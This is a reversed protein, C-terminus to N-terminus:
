LGSKTEIKDKILGLFEEASALARQEGNRQRMSLAGTELEKDGIILMYPVKQQQAQRIRYNLTNSSADTVARIGAAVLAKEIEEARVQHREAIPLVHVQVPCLWVPFNGGHHEILVAFFREMSGLLARHIMFPRHEKGDEAIYSLDFREPLNFDFQITSLQWRRKLADELNIDIKPGYFAGDGANVTYPLGSRDLAERLASEAADWNEELGVRKEPRTSLFLHFDTLGFDRLLNISFNLVRDIEHPMQDGRCFLHADDQTFGRVRTLGHLTGSREFRYVTGWEAFRLPLDRYSRISSKYIQTHFPCNMPKLYYEQDEIVIPAYMSEKYFELHGSTRWLTARGIHPSYVFQYGGDLHQKRCHEEVIYRILGGKPHWLILGSGVTEHNVSFLDLDKGLRRHDRKKAEELQWLHEALAKKDFFATGYIRQLMKNRENGRWYAGASELLRFNKVQGTHKIHPGRCLDVFDGDRYFSLKEGRAGLEEILELKYPEDRDRMLKLADDMSLEFREFRHKESVIKEMERSIKELDEPTFPRPVDFDYYFGADIAPGIALKAEPFIRKVAQALVHSYSHRYFARVNADDEVLRLYTAAGKLGTPLPTHLDIFVEGVKVGIVDARDKESLHSVLESSPQGVQYQREVGDPFHLAIMKETM